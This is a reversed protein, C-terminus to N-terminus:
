APVGRQEQRAAEYPYKEFLVELPTAFLENSLISGLEADYLALIPDTQTLSISMPTEGLEDDRRKFDKLTVRGLPRAPQYRFDAATDAEQAPVPSVLQIQVLRNLCENLIQTPVKLKESLQTATCPELCAEFRRGISLLVILTLRERLTESLSNWAAQSNRFHVNQVAYSVTGGLLVFLWFIYLGLMLVPVISLSGYLSRTLLVRKLYLAALFNNLLILLAVVVAGAFAASWLVRTNPITRYFVALLVTLLVASAVPLLLQLLSQIENRFPLKEAFANLLAGASLGTAATFFLAAGLTLITWYFVLRLLWSRGRRVGWIENFATEISTFLQLVIVVLMLAGFAGLAGRSSSAVFGNVIEILEPNLQAAAGADVAAGGEKAREAAAMREYQVLQPAVYGVLRHVTNAVLNPDDKDLAFGAVMVAIAVVPGIGLLSSFSLAAARSAANTKTLGSYTISIVRLIAFVRGRVSRENLFQVQWITVQFLRVLRAWRTALTEM